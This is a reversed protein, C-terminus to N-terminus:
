FAATLKISITARVATTVSCNTVSQWLAYGPLISVKKHLAWVPGPRWFFGAIRDLAVLRCGSHDGCDLFRRRPLVESRQFKM